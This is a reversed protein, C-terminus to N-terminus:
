FDTQSNNRTTAKLHQIFSISLFGEYCDGSSNCLTLVNRVFQLFVKYGM